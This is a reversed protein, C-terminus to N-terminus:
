PLSPQLLFCSVMRRPTYLVAKNRILTEIGCPTLSVCEKWTDEISVELQALSSAQYTFHKSYVMWVQTQIGPAQQDTLRTFCPIETEVLFRTEFFLTFLSLLFWRIDVGLRWMHVHTYCCEYTCLACVRACVCVCVCFGFSYDGDPLDNTM